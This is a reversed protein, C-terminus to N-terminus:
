TLMRCCGLQQHEQNQRARGDKERDDVDEIGAVGSERGHEKESVKETGDELYRTELRSQIVLM